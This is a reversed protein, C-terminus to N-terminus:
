SALLAALGLGAGRRQQSAPQQAVNPKARHLAVLLM